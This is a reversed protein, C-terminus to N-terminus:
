NEDGNMLLYDNKVLEVSSVNISDNDKATMIQIYKAM